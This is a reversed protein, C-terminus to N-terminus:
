TVVIDKKLYARDNAPQNKNAILFVIKIIKLILQTLKTNIKENIMDKPPVFM